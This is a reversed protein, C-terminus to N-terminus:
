CGLKPLPGTAQLWPVFGRQQPVNYYLAIQLLALDVTVPANTHEQAYTTTQDWLSSLGVFGM